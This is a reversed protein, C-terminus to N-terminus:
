QAQESTHAAYKECLISYLEWIITGSPIAKGEDDGTAFSYIAEGRGDSGTWSTMYTIKSTQSQCDIEETTTTSLYQKGNGAVAVGNNNRLTEVRAVSESRTVSTPDYLYTYDRSYWYPLWLQASAPAHAALLVLFIMKKTM